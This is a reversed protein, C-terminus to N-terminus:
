AITLEGTTEVTVSSAGVLVVAEWGETGGTVDADYVLLIDTGAAGQPDAAAFFAKKASDYVGKVAHAGNDTLVLTSAATTLTLAGTSVAWDTTAPNTATGDYAAVKLTLGHGAGNIVDFTATAVEEGGPVAFTGSDNHAQVVTAGATGLAIYDAGAGATISGAVNGGAYIKDEGGGTAIFGTVTNGTGAWVTDDGAGGTISAVTAYRQDISMGLTIVNEGDGLDVAGAVGSFITVKDNGSGLTISGGTMVSGFINNDATSSGIINYAGGTYIRLMDGHSGPTVASADLTANNDLALDSAATGGKSVTVQGTNLVHLETSGMSIDGTVVVNGGAAAATIGSATDLGYAWAAGEFVNAMVGTQTFVYYRESTSSDDRFYVTNANADFYWDGSAAVDGRTSKRSYLSNFLVRDGVENARITSGDALLTTGDPATGLHVHQGGVATLDLEEFGRVHLSGSSYYGLDLVGAGTVALVDRGEGGDISASVGSGVAISVVDDGKGASIGALRSGAITITDNNDGGYISGGSVGSGTTIVNRATASGKITAAGDFASLNLTFADGYPSTVATADLTKGSALAVGPTPGNDNISIKGDGAAVNIRDATGGMVTGTIKVDDGDMDSRIGSPAASPGWVAMGNALGMTGYSSFTIEKNGEVGYIILKRATIDYYWNNTADLDSEATAPAATLDAFRVVDGTPSAHVTAGALDAANVTVDQALTDSALDLIEVNRLTGSSLNLDGSGTIKLTDIGAGGDLATVKAKTSITVTDTAAGGTYSTASAGLFVTNDATASGKVAHAVAVAGTNLRLVGEGEVASADLTRGTGLPGGAPLSAGNKYGSWSSISGDLHLMVSSGQETKVSGSVVLDADANFAATIGSMDEPEPPTVIGGDDDGDDGDNGNDGDDKGDGDGGDKNGGTVNNKKSSDLTLGPPLDDPNAAALKGTNVNNAEPLVITTEGHANTTKTVATQGLIAGDQKVVVAASTNTFVVLWNDTVTGTGSTSPAIIIVGAADKINAPPAAYDGDGPVPASSDPATPKPSVSSNALNGVDGPKQAPRPSGASPAPTASMYNVPAINGTVADRSPDNTVRQSVPVTQVLAVGSENAEAAGAAAYHSIPSFGSDKFAAVVEDLSIDPDSRRLLYLKASWYANADFANSPNIFNGAKDTEHCGFQSYHEVASMGLDQLVKLVADATWTTRGEHGISNLQKAKAQLYEYENFYPNPNLGESRGTQEYHARLSGYASEMATRAASVTYDGYGGAKLQSVKANLYYAEDFFYSM